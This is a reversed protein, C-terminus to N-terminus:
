VSEVDFRVINREAESFEVGALRVSQGARGHKEAYRREKLQRLASGDGKQAVVKFEFLYVRDPLRVAM